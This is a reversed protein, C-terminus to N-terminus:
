GLEVQRPPLVLHRLVRRAAEVWAEQARQLGGPELDPFAQLGPGQGLEDDVSAREVGPLQSSLHLPEKLCLGTLLAPPHLHGVDGAVVDEVGQPIGGRARGDVMQRVTGGQIRPRVLGGNGIRVDALPPKHLRELHTSVEDDRPSRRIGTTHLRQGAPPKAPAQLVIVMMGQPQDTPM